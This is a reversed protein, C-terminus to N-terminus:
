LSSSSFGLLVAGANPSEERKLKALERRIDILRDKGFRVKFDRPLVTKSM